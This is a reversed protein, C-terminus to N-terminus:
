STSTMGPAFKKLAITRCHRSKPLGRAFRALGEAKLTDVTGKALVYGCQWYDGRDILVLGQRPGAHGMAQQPDGAEKSVKMWLLDTATGFSQVDLGAAKRVISNRGDAGIVLDAELVLDRDGQRVNVGVVRENDWRLSTVETSMQLRFRPYEGAKEALFNLFDWQPMFAIFKARTPLRSFDAITASRGAIEAHLQYAKQHPLALLEDLFGLEHIAELTSPHITDGRFDRLFDQHKEIVTVDVGSRALLLGLMLGAPGAGVVICSQSRKVHSYYRM